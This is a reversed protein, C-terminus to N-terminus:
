SCLLSVASIKAEEEQDKIYAKDDLLTQAGVQKFLEQKAENASM